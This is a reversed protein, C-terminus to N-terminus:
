FSEVVAGLWYCPEQSGADVLQNTWKSRQIYLRDNIDIEGTVHSALQFLNSGVYRLTYGKSTRICTCISM